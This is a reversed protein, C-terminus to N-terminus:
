TRRTPENTMLSTCSHRSLSQDRLTSAAWEARGVSRCASSIEGAPAAGVGGCDAHIWGLAIVDVPHHYFGRWTEHRARALRYLKGGYRYPVPDADRHQVAAPGVVRRGRGRSGRLGLWRRDMSCPLLQPVVVSQYGRVRIGRESGQRVVSDADGQGMVRSRLHDSGLRDEFFIARPFNTELYHVGYIMAGLVAARFAIGRRSTILLWLVACGLAAMTARSGTLVTGLLAFAILLGKVDRRKITFSLLLPVIGYYLGAVNKDGLFGTLVGGYTDPLFGLYFMPINLALAVTMGQLVAKLQLRGSGFAGILTMLIAIRDARRMWDVDNILSVGILFAILAVALIGLVGFRSLQRQPRQTIALICLAVAAVESLPFVEGGVKVIVGQLVLIIGLVAQLLLTPNGRVLPNDHDVVETSATRSIATDFVAVM